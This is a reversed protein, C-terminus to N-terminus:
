NDFDLSAIISNLQHQKGGEESLSAADRAQALERQRLKELYQANCDAVAQKIQAFHAPITEMANVYSNIFGRQSVDIKAMPNVRRGLANFDECWDVPAEESLLYYLDIYSEKRIRPPRLPDTGKIKIESFQTM